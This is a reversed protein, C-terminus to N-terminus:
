PRQLIFAQRLVQGQETTATLVYTGAPLDLDLRAELGQLQQALVRRGTVDWIAVERLRENARVTLPGSSPSPFLTLSANASPGPDSISLPDFTPSVTEYLTAGNLDTRVVFVDDGGTGYSRTTGALVFGDALLDLGAGADDDDGGFTRGFVFDGTPDSKLLFMDSGGGGSTRTYGASLYSGDILEVHEYAEQDNIQGWHRVWLLAGSADVKAHLHEVWQSYSETSGVISFGGDATAIVDRAVDASVGGVNTDWLVTLDPALRVLWADRDGGTDVRYGAAIYGGDDTQRADYFGEEEATGFTRTWLTDGTDNVRVLWADSGGAGTSYTRGALISGGGSGPEVSEFFDWDAGGYFKEWQPSGDPAAKVLWGDYGQGVNGNTVGGLLWSDDSLISLGTAREVDMSVYTYSGMLEGDPDLRLVYADGTGPGFSGTNGAVLFDGTTMVKVHRAEDPGLAGYARRWTIQAQGVALFGLAFLFTISRNFM